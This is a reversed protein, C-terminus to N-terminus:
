IGPQGADLRRKGGLAKSINVRAGSRRDRAQDQAAAKSAIKSVPQM